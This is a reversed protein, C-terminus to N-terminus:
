RHELTLMFFSAIRSVLTISEIIQGYISEHKQTGWYSWLAHADLKQNLIVRYNQLFHASTGSFVLEHNLDPLFRKAQVAMKICCLVWIEFVIPQAVSTWHELRETMCKQSSIWQIKGPGDVALKINPPSLYFCKLVAFKIEQWRILM